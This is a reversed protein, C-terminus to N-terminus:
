IIQWKLSSGTKLGRIGEGRPTILLVAGKFIILLLDQPHLPLGWLSKYWAPICARGFIMAGTILKWILTYKGGGKRNKNMPIQQTQSIYNDRTNMKDFHILSLDIIHVVGNM